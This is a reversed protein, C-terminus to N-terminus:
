DERKKVRGSKVKLACIRRGKKVIFDVEFNGERWYFLGLGTRVLQAGVILAFVRGKEEGSYEDQIELYYLAPRLPLIKPTSSKLKIKNTSFKELVKVLFAGEYLKLYYKVLETNGKDQLQGM